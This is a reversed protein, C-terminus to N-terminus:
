SGGVTTNTTEGAINIGIFNPLAATGTADTGIFNGKVFNGIAGVNNIGVGVNNGSVVNRAAPPIGGVTNNASEVRIGIDNGRAGAGATDTGVFNGAVTNGGGAALEIGTLFKGITLGQVLSSGATITLGNSNSTLSGDLEILIVANDGLPLTNPSSGFQSYGNIGVPVVTAPLASVPTITHVGAGPISFVIQDNTGYTGVAVVDSNVNAGNNISTIAERLTVFGDVAITDGTGTVTITAASAISSTLISAFLPAIARVVARRIRPTTLLGQM